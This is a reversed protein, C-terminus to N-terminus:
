RLEARGAAILFIAANLPLEEEIENFASFRAGGLSFKPAKNIFVKVPEESFVVANVFPDFGKLEELSISKALLGTGGHITDPVRLIKHLDVSTQRDIALSNQQRSFDILSNWFRESVKDGANPVSYLVGESMKELVTKRKEILAQAQKKKIGGIGAIFAENGERFMSFLSKMLRANIGKREELGPCRIAGRETRGFGQLFPNFEHLTLYDILEVRARQSLGKVRGSRVHVHYGAKGSFNVSIGESFGLESSLVEILKLTQKKAEGLCEKCFWQEVKVGAGCKPCAEISSKGQAGCEKCQWSDHEEKCKTPIMDADFEYILDSGIFGKREMPRHAPREYYASSHSIFPPVSRQLFENLEKESSFALHRKVIKKGFDGIGFERKEISPIGKVSHSEYYSKFANRLFANEKAGM